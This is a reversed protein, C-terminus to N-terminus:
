KCFTIERFCLRPETRGSLTILEVHGQRQFRSYRRRHGRTPRICPSPHNEASNIRSVPGFVPVSFFNSISGSKLYTHYLPIFARLTPKTAQDFLWGRCTVRVSRHPYLRMDITHVIIQQLVVELICLVCLIRLHIYKSYSSSVGYTKLYRAHLSNLLQLM